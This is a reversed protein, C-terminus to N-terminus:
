GGGVVGNQCAGKREAVRLRYSFANARRACSWVIAGSAYPLFAAVPTCDFGRRAVIPGASPQQGARPRPGSLALGDGTGSADPTRAGSRQLEVLSVLNRLPWESERITPTGASVSFSGLLRLCVGELKGV